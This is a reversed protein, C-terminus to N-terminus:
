NSAELFRQLACISSRDHEAAPDYVHHLGGLVSRAIVQVGEQDQGSLPPAQACPAQQAASQHPRWRNIYAVYEALVRRLHQKNLILM